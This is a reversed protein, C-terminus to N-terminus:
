IYLNMIMENTKPSESHNSSYSHFSIIHPTVHFLYQFNCFVQAAVTGVFGLYKYLTWLNYM